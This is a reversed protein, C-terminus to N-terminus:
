EDRRIMTAFEGTKAMHSLADSKTLSHRALFQELEAAEEANLPEDDETAPLSPEPVFSAMPASTTAREITAALKVPAAKVPQDALAPAADIIRAERLTRFLNREAAAEYKRTLLTEADPTFRALKVILDRERRIEDDDFDDLVATLGEIERDIIQGLRAKGEACRPSVQFALAHCDHAPFGQLNAARGAHSPTWLDQDLDSKLDTWGELLRNVGDWTRGLKRFSADPTVELSAFLATVRDIREDDFDQGAQEGKLTMFLREHLACHTLRISLIAIREVLGKSLEHRPKLQQILARTMREVEVTEEDLFVVGDGSLGHKLSNRRSIAKGEPTRPGTSKMANKRNAITRADTTPM